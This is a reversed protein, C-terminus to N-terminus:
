SSDGVASNFASDSYDAFDVHGPILGASTFANSISQESAVVASTILVPTTLRLLGRRTAARRAPGGGSDRGAGGGTTGQPAQVLLVPGSSM